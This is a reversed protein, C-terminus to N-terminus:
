RTQSMVSFVPINIQIQPQQHPRAKNGLIIELALSQITHSNLLYLQKIQTPLKHHPQLRNGKQAAKKARLFLKSYYDMHIVHLHIHVSNLRLGKFDSKDLKWFCHMFMAVANHVCNDAVCSIICCIWLAYRVPLAWYPNVSKQGPHNKAVITLM